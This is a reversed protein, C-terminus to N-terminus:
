TAAPVVSPVSCRQPVSAPVFCRFRPAPQKAYRDFKHELAADPTNIEQRLASQLGTLRVRNWGNWDCITQAAPQAKRAVCHVRAAISKSEPILKADCKAPTARHIRGSGSRPQNWARARRVGRALLNAAGLRAALPQLSRAFCAPCPECGKELM